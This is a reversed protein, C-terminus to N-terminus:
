RMLIMKNMQKFKGVKMLTFFVGSSLCMGNDDRGDWKLSFVGPSKQEALLKRVIKGNIDYVFIEVFAASPLGFGIITEANFPNPYNQSLIYKEPCNNKIMAVSTASVVISGYFTRVDQLSIAQLKYYYIGFEDVVDLYTYSSGTFANGQSPILSLNLQAYGSNEQRSRFVNFGANNPETETVWNLIINKQDVVATFSSLVINTPQQQLPINNNIVLPDGPSLNFSLYFPNDACDRNTLYNTTGNRSGMGVVHPDPLPTPEYPIPQPLCTSSLQYGVAPTYVMTYVGAVQVMWQYYGSSGDHIINVVGPGTVQISGGPIIYGNSELYIWGTPDYDNYDMIFDGDRDGSEKADPIGDEDTDADAETTFITDAGNTTGAYNQGVVRYHYTTSPTLGSIAKSVATDTNGTAPSQDATVQSGYATTTGYEFIVTTSTKNANVIGNLTAFTSGVATAPETTVNPPAAVMGTFQLYYDEVEGNNFTGTLTLPSSSDAVLRFRAFRNYTDDKPIAGDPIDFPITQLGAMIPQMNLVQDGADSFNINNDWDIWGSLYGSGGTITVDIAGGNIGNHWVGNVTVGDEDNTDNGDDGDADASEQGDAEYDIKAGLFLDEINHRAGDNALSTLDYNAPLDGFDLGSNSFGPTGLETAAADWGLAKDATFWNSALVGDGPPTVRMMSYKNANDGAAPAGSGDDATDILNGSGNWAGDYLKIQLQSNALSVGTEVLNPTVAIQSNAEDYNSILFYGHAAITGAPIELMLTESGSSLRTLQWGTLDINRNTKNKLEIWEDASSSTSGMWMIENLVVDAASPRSTVDFHNSLGIETGGSNIVTIVDGLKEQAISVNGTWRGAAFNDSMTPAITGTLDSINVTGTFSSITVEAVDKATVTIPFTIGAQQDDIAGIAFHDLAGAAYNSSGPTGKESAGIDWGEAIDATFWNSAVTGDGPPNKRMMSFKNTNDGAAPAGSGDDATDILHGGSDWPGDYLKIQLQTNALSVDADVLDPTVDIKSTTANYNSILFYGHAPIIGSSIDLMLEEVGSNNKTLQWGTLDIPTATMNRLEIWEDASSASSGTWMLENIVVDGPAAFGSYFSSLWNVLLFVLFVSTSKM